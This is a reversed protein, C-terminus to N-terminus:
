RGVEAGVKYGMGYGQWWACFEDATFTACCVAFGAAFILAYLISHRM